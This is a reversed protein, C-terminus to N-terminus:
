VSFDCSATRGTAAMDFYQEVTFGAVVEEPEQSGFSENIAPSEYAIARSMGAPVVAEQSWSVM